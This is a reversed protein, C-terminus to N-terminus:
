YECTRCEFLEKYLLLMFLVVHFYRAQHSIQRFDASDIMNEEQTIIHVTNRIARKIEQPKSVQSQSSREGKKKSRKKEDEEETKIKAVKSKCKQM